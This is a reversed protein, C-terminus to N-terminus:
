RIGSAIPNTVDFHLLRHGVFHGLSNQLKALKLLQFSFVNQPGQFGGGPANGTLVTGGRQEAHVGRSEVRAYSRQADLARFLEMRSKKVHSKVDLTTLDRL